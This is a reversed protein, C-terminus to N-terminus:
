ISSLTKALMSHTSEIVIVAALGISTGFGALAQLDHGDVDIKLLYNPLLDISLEDFRVLFAKECAVIHKGDAEVLVDSLGTYTTVGNRHNTEFYHLYRSRCIVIWM